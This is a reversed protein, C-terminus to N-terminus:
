ATEIAAPEASACLLMGSVVAGACPLRAGGEPTSKILIPTEIEIFGNEDMYDRILKIIRHRLILRDQM